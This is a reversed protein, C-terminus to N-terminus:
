VYICIKPRSKGDYLSCTQAGFPSFRVKRFVSIALKSFHSGKPFIRLYMTESVTNNINGIKDIKHKEALKFHHEFVEVGVKGVKHIVAHGTPLSCLSCFPNAM